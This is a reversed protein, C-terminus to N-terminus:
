GQALTDRIQEAYSASAEDETLIEVQDPGTAGLGMEAARAIQEQEWIRGLSVEPTTGLMRLISVGVADIAVRDQGALIVGPQALTGQTPGGTTFAEVGDLLILDPTYVANIAAIMRRQHPSSHLEQMYNYENGPVFKATLGVSNKLSLTFHGGYRHTKLCCTQVVSEAQRLTQPVAFGDRWHSGDPRVMEWDAAALEDLVVVDFGLTQGMDFAGRRQLVQRTNGMGSRELLRIRDAGWEQLTEVLTALVDSHTSAPAPDASNFNPKLVVSKGQVPRVGLMKLARRSGEVRDTTKVLAIQSRAVQKPLPTLRSAPLPTPQSETPTLRPTTPSVSVATPVAQCAALLASTLSPFALARALFGRRSVPRMM